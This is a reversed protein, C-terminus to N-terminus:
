ADCGSLNAFSSLPGGRIQREADGGIVEAVTHFPDRSSASELQQGPAFADPSTCTPLISPFEAM